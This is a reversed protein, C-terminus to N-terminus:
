SSRECCVAGEDIGQVRLNGEGGLVSIDVEADIMAVVDSDRVM